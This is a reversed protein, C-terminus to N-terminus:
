SLQENKCKVLINSAACYYIDGGINYFYDVILAAHGFYCNNLKFRGAQAVAEVLTVDTGFAENKSFSFGFNVATKCDEFIKDDKLIFFASGTGNSSITCATRIETGDKLDLGKGLVVGYYESAPAISGGIIIKLLGDINGKLVIYFKYDSSSIHCWSNNLFNMELGHISPYPCYYNGNKSLYIQITVGDITLCYDEQSYTCTIGADHLTSQIASCLVHSQSSYVTINTNNSIKKISKTETANEFTGAFYKRYYM